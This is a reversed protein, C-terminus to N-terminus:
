MECRVDERPQTGTESKANLDINFVQLALGALVKRDCGLGTWRAVSAACEVELAQGSCGDLAKAMHRVFNLYSLFDRAMVGHTMLVQRAMCEFARFRGSAVAYNRCQGAIDSLQRMLPMDAKVAANYKRCQRALREDM